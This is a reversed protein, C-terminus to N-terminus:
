FPSNPRYATDLKKLNEWRTRELEEKNMNRGRFLDEKKHRRV